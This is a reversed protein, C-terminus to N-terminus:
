LGKAWKEGVAIRRSLQEATAETVRRVGALRNLEGNVERHSKGTIQVLHAVLDANDKRLKSKKEALSEGGGASAPAGRRRPLPPLDIDLSEDGDDPDWVLEEGGDADDPDDEDEVGTAVASMAQFLSLQEDEGPEDLEAGAEPDPAEEDRVRKFLSHRRQEAVGEALRRLRPDDPIYLWARQTRLGRTWRVLRGVAQRFFLETTTNTAFVGVRLRPIDVGESVMRVAVIWPDTSRAFRAIRASAMPDDSTAVTPRVRYRRELLDAIARAHEVDMAIVLGAAEPQTRRVEVLRRHADGLVTALWEGDPSLATRLRQNARVRDLEDDFDHAHFSGDPAVWEMQGKIRPFHVPRVVGGDGLADGYGYEFDPVAEEWRYTVFPIPTTDSRFPTGSLSLRQEAEGFAVRLGDGWARDDGAHHIEDIIAFGGAALAAVALPNSAVQQYTTVLGDMDGPLPDGARWFPELALEFGAAAQAWQRKLHQTPAVVVLRADPHEALWHRAATLAFTTKGAGPTAVALFDSGETTRFQELADRQWRRLRITRSMPRVLM